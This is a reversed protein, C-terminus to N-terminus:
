LLKEKDMLDNLTKGYSKIFSDSDLIWSIVLIPFVITAIIIYSMSYRIPIKRKVTKKHIFFYSAIAFSLAIIFYEVM